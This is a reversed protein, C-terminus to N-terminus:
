SKPVAIAIFRPATSEYSTSTQLTLQETATPELYEIADWPVRPHVATVVYTRSTGDVLELEVEDGERVDWLAVFMGDRAHGYVYINSGGGPWATGPYHAAKGIPADIGDGEIIRLDIGLREIRIRTARTGVAVDASPSESAPTFPLAATPPVTDLRLETVAPAATQGATPTSAPAVRDPGCGAVLAVGIAGALAVRALGAGMRGGRHPRMERDTM